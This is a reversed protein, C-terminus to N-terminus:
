DLLEKKILLTRVKKGGEIHDLYKKTSM